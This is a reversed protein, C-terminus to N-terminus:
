RPRLTLEGTLFRRVGAPTQLLLAGQDDVGIARGAAVEHGGRRVSVNRQQLAHRALWPARFPAFGASAFRALARDLECLLHALTAERTARWGTAGLDTIAADVRSRTADDLEVNIGVGVIVISGEASNPLSEVLIGGLKRHAHLVDNPWKLKLGAAGDQELAECVAVGVALSLGALAEPARLTRWCLSFLLSGGPRDIWDRGQRGRGATQTEAIVAMGDIDAGAAARRRLEESTSDLSQHIEPRIRPNVQRVMGVLCAADLAIFHANM